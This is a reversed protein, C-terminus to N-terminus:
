GAQRTLGRWNFLGGSKEQRERLDDLAHALAQDDLDDRILNQLDGMTKAGIETDLALGRLKPLIRFEIQDVLPLAVGRGHSLGLPYNAVYATMAANLRHGFPRGCGIMILQLKSIIDKTLEKDAHDMRESARIWGKWTKFSLRRDQRNIALGGKAEGFSDPAAFQMINGRDLVKESLSQTSEDDNMTGVFLMNHSPYLRLEGEARGRIDIPIESDQRQYKAEDGIFRSPRAELRSLFESFYYEVRALNMEDLLVIMVDDSYDAGSNKALGSTNYPDLHVLARALETARFKKEIYNYFGLLDQPSDWRPEVAIPLFRMGM